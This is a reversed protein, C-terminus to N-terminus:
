DGLSRATSKQERWQIHIHSEFWGLVPITGPTRSQQMSLEARAREEQPISTAAVTGDFHYPGCKPCETKYLVPAKGRQDFESVFTEVTTGCLVCPASGTRIM